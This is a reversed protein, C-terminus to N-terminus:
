LEDMFRLSCKLTLFFTQISLENDDM